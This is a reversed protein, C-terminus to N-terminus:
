LTKKKTSWHQLKVTINKKRSYPAKHDFNNTENQIRRVDIISSARFCIQVVFKSKM